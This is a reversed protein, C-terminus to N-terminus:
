LDMRRDAAHDHYEKEEGALPPNPHPHTTCACPGTGVNTELVALRKFLGVLMAMVMADHPVSRSAMCIPAAHYRCYRWLADFAEQDETRLARRFHKWAEKEGEILQVVSPVTRGM